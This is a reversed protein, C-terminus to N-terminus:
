PRVQAATVMAREHEAVKQDAKGVLKYVGGGKGKMSKFEKEKIAHVKELEALRAKAAALQEMSSERFAEAEAFAGDADHSAALRKLITVRQDKVTLILQKVTM